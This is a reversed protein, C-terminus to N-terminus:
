PALARSVAEPIDRPAIFDSSTRMKNCSNTVPILKGKFGSAAIKQLIDKDFHDVHIVVIEPNSRILSLTVQQDHSTRVTANEIMGECRGAEEPPLGALLVVNRKMSM